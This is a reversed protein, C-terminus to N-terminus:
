KMCLIKGKGERGKGRGEREGGEGRGRGEREGGEGRGEGEGEGEREGGEGVWCVEEGDSFASVEKREGFYDAPNKIMEHVINERERGGGEGGREGRGGM